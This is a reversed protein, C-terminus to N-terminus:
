KKSKHSGFETEGMRVEQLHKALEEPVYDFLYNKSGPFQEVYDRRIEQNIREIEEKLERKIYKGSTVRKDVPRCADDPIQWVGKEKMVGPIKGTKCMNNVSRDSIGWEKAKEKCTKM